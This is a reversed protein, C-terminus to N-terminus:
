RVMHILKGTIAQSIRRPKSRRSFRLMKQPCKNKVLFIQLGFVFDCTAENLVQLARTFEPRNSARYCIRPFLTHKALNRSKLLSYPHPQFKAHCCCVRRYLNISRPLRDLFVDLLDLMSCFCFQVRLLLLIFISCLSLARSRIWSATRWSFKLFDLWFRINGGRRARAKNELHSLCLSPPTKFFQRKALREFAVSVM